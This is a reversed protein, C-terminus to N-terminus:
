FIYLAGLATAAEVYGIKSANLLRITWEPLNQDKPIHFPVILALCLTVWVALAIMYDRDIIREGKYDAASLLRKLFATPISYRCRLFDQHAKMPDNKSCLTSRLLSLGVFKSVDDDAQMYEMVLDLEDMPAPKHANKPSMQSSASESPTDSSGKACSDFVRQTSPATSCPHEESASMGAENSVKRSGQGNSSLKWAETQGAIDGKSCM